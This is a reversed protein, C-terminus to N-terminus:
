TLALTQPAFLDEVAPKKEIMEQEHLYGILTELTHRNKEIGDCWPDEGLTERQQAM